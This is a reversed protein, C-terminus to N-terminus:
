PQSLPATQMRCAFVAGNADPMRFGVQGPNKQGANYPIQLKTIQLKFGV